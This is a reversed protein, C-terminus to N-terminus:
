APPPTRELLLLGRISSSSVHCAGHAAQRRSQAGRCPARKAASWPARCRGLPARSGRSHGSRQELLRMVAPVKFAGDREAFAPVVVNQLVPFNPSSKGPTRFVRAVGLQNSRTRSRAPSCRAMSSWPAKRRPPIRGVIVNLLAPGAPATRGQHDAGPGQGGRDRPRHRLPRAPRWLTRTCTTSTCLGRQTRYHVHRAGIRRAPHPRARGQRAAPRRRFLSMIRRIGEMIGGPLYVCLSCSSRLGLTWHWGRASSSASSPSWPKASPRPCALCLRELPDPRQLGLLHERFVRRGRRRTGPWCPDRRRRPSTSSCSRAAPWTADVARREAGALPDTIPSCRGALGAFAASSSSSPSPTPERAPFGMSGIAPEPRVRVPACCTARLALLLDRVTIYFTLILVLACFFFGVATLELGLLHPVAPRPSRGFHETSCARITLRWSCSPRATPSPTLV